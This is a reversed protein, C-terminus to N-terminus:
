AWDLYSHVASYTKLTKHANRSLEAARSEILRVALNMQLWVSEAAYGDEDNTSKAATEFGVVQM